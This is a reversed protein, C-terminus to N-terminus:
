SYAMYIDTFCIVKGFKNEFTINGEAKLANLLAIDKALDDPLFWKNSQIKIVNKFKSQAASIIKECNSLSIAPFFVRGGPKLYDLAKELVKVVLKTGDQGSACPVNSFWESKEAIKEAVGSIDDIIYDFSHGAWPEFSDGIKANMIVNHSEANKECLDIAHDSLDSAHVESARGMLALSIGVIGVGCGLDLISGPIKMEKTCAKILFDSTATPIFAKDGIKFNIITNIEPLKYDFYPESM